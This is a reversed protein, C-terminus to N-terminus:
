FFTRYPPFTILISTHFSNWEVFNSLSSIDNGDGDDDGGGGGGAGGNNNNNNNNNSSSCCCSGSSSSSSSSLAYKLLKFPPVNTRIQGVM